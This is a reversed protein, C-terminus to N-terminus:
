ASLLRLAIFTVVYGAGVYGGILVSRKRPSASRWAAM